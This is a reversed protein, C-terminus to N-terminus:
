AKPRRGQLKHLWRSAAALLESESLKPEDLFDKSPPEPDKSSVGEGAAGPHRDLSARWNKFGFDVLHGKVDDAVLASKQRNRHQWAELVQQAQHSLDEWTQGHINHFYRLLPKIAERVVLDDVILNLAVQFFSDFLLIGGTLESEDLLPYGPVRRIYISRVKKRLRTLQGQGSLGKSAQLFEQLDGIVQPEVGARKMYDLYGELSLQGSLLLKVGLYIFPDSEANDGILVFESGEDARDVVSLIALSKYAVHQRLLDMRGMRINYVQDKFTDSTWDLGDM